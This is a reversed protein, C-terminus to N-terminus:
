RTRMADEKYQEILFRGLNELTRDRSSNANMKHPNGESDFYMITPVSKVPVGLSQHKTIDVAAISCSKMQKCSRVMDMFVPEFEKCYPCHPMYYYVLTKKFSRPSVTVSTVSM